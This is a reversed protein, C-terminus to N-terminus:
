SAFLVTFEHDLPRFSELLADIFSDGYLVYLPAINLVREQLVGSPFLKNKLGDIQSLSTQHKRKEARVMKKDLAAILKLARIKAAEASQSLTKDIKYANLKIHDFVARISREEDDLSIYTTVHSKVWESKLQENDKFLSKHSIGLIQMKRESRKDIILASNRLLLVPFPVGYFDFNAKLQLWYTVEAGGGIYALNPLIIEQYMPRMVVNPSFREPFANIEDRLADASFSIDSNLVSFVGHEEVIRERFGEKMYFFNIERPNVQPKYGIAELADNSDQINKFSNQELIDQLIIAAFQQKLSRDDADICVLGTHSFLANVLARMADALNANGEYAAEVISALKHGNEGIGLYGQYVSIVDALDKTSIKGTPGAANTDWALKKDELKIHNIEEFDHDETAMWYVPVFNYDPFKEKLEKTLNITTVIKYIFYLPGTFLNLQHGTTITFTKDDALLDINASVLASTELSSYQKHLVDVLVSRDAPPTAHAKPVSGNELAAGDLLVSQDALVKRAAIAAEFGQMNVPYQYFSSLSEKGEIYDLVIPSFSNTQQYSIYKAQM